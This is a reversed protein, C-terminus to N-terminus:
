KKRPIYRRRKPPKTSQTSTGRSGSASPKPKSGPIPPTRQKRNATTAPTRPKPVAVKPVSGPKPPTAGKGRAATAAGGAKKLVLFQPDFRVEGEVTGKRVTVVADAIFNRDQKVEKIAFGMKTAEPSPITVRSRDKKNMLKVKVGYTYKSLGVLVWDPLDNKIEDKPEEPPPDTFASNLYLDKYRDPRPSRPLEDARLLPLSLAVFTLLSLFKMIAPFNTASVGRQGPHDM